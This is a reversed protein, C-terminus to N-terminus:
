RSGEIRKIRRRQARKAFSWRALAILGILAAAFAGILKLKIRVNEAATLAPDGPVLFWINLIILSAYVALIVALWAIVTFGATPQPAEGSRGWWRYGARYRVVAASLAWAVGSLTFITIFVLGSEMDPVLLACLIVFAILSSVAGVLHSRTRVDHPLELRMHAMTEHGFHAPNNM